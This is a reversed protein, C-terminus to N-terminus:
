GFEAEDNLRIAHLKDNLTMTNIRLQTYVGANIAKLRADLSAFDQYNRIDSIDSIDQANSLYDGTATASAAAPGFTFTTSGAGPTDLQENSITFLTDEKLVNASTFLRVKDGIALDTADANTCVLTTTSGAGTAAASRPSGGKNKNIPRFNNLVHAGIM